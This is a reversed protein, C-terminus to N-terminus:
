QVLIENGEAANIATVRKKGECKGSSHLEAAVEKKLVIM